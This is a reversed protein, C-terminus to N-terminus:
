DSGKKRNILEKIVYEHEKFIDSLIEKEANDYETSNNFDSEFVELYNMILLDVTKSYENERLGIAGYDASLTRKYYIKNTRRSLIEDIENNWEEILEKCRKLKALIEKLSLAPAFSFFSHTEAKLKRLWENINVLLTSDLKSAEVQAVVLGQRNELKICSGHESSYIDATLFTFMDHLLSLRNYNHEKGELSSYGWKANRIDTKDCYLLFNLLHIIDINYTPFDQRTRRKNCEILTDISTSSLGTLESFDTKGHTELPIFGFLYDASCSFFTCYAVVFEGQLNNTNDSKLHTQVKKTTSAVQRKMIERNDLLEDNDKMKVKVLNSKCLQRALEDATEIGKNSMLRWLRNKFLNMDEHNDSKYGM